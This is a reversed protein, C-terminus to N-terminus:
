SQPLPSHGTVRMLTWDAPGDSRRADVIACDDVRVEVRALDGHRLSRIFECIEEHRPSSPPVHLESQEGEFLCELPRGELGDSMLAVFPLVRTRTRAIRDIQM